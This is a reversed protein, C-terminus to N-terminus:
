TGWLAGWGKGWGAAFPAILRFARDERAYVWVGDQLRRARVLVDIEFTRGPSGVEPVEAATLTAAIVAGVDIQAAAPLVALGTDPDIWRVEIVYGVGPEPGINGATYDDIVVSTQALRDRHAWTLVLNGVILADAAPAHSANGQMRGAPLPRIARRDMVVTDEAALALALTGQATQPLLRARVTEGAAFTAQSLNALEDFFLIPTGAPHARPVTDLCGRGAQITTATIGDIRILEGGMM